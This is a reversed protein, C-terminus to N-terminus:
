EDRKAIGDEDEVCFYHLVVSGTWWGFLVYGSQIIQGMCSWIGLWDFSFRSVITSPFSLDFLITTKTWPKPALLSSVFLRYKSTALERWDFKRVM